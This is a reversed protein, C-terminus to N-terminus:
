TDFQDTIKKLVSLTIDLEKQSLEDANENSWKAQKIDLMAYIQAGRNTLNILKARKHDPNTQFDLLGDEHMADVLRQIAQRTLGMTKAIRPVTLPSGSLAISGLIKWRASTLGYEKTIQDGESILLGGLKFLELVVETFIVGKRTRSMSHAWDCQSLM